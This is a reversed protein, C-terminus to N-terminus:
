SPLSPFSSEIESIGTIAADEKEKEKIWHNLAMVVLELGPKSSVM